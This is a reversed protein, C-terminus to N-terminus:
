RVTWSGGSWVPQRTCVAGGAGDRPWQAWSVSWGEHRLSTLAEWDTWQPAAVACWEPDADSSAAFQQMPADPGIGRDGAAGDPGAVTIVYSSGLGGAGTATFTTTGVQAFTITLVAPFAASTPDETGPSVSSTWTVVGATSSTLSSCASYELVTLTMTDGVHGTVPTITNMGGCYPAFNGVTAAQALGAGAVGTVLFGVTALASLAFLRRSRNMRIARERPSPVPLGDPHRSPLWRGDTLSLSEGSARRCTGPM